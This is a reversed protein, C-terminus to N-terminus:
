WLLSDDSAPSLFVSSQQHQPPLKKQAVCTVPSAAMSIMADRRREDSLDPEQMNQSGYHATSSGASDFYYTDNSGLRSSNTPTHGTMHDEPPTMEVYGHMPYDQVTNPDPSQRSREIEAMIVAQRQQARDLMSLEVSHTQINHQDDATVGSFTKGRNTTLIGSGRLAFAFPAM